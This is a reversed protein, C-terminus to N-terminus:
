PCGTDALDIKGDQDNDKFDHCTDPGILPTTPVLKHEPTKGQGFISPDSGLRNEAANSWGDRDDDPALATARWINGVSSLDCQSTFGGIAQEPDGGFGDANFFVGDITLRHSHTGAPVILNSASFRLYGDSQVIIPINTTLDLKFTGCSVSPSTIRVVQKGDGSIGISFPLAPNLTIPYSGNYVTPLVSARGSGRPRPLSPVTVPGNFRVTVSNPFSGPLPRDYTVAGIYQTGSVVAKTAAGSFASTTGTGVNSSCSPSLVQCITARWRQGTVSAQTDVILTGNATATLDFVCADGAAGFSCTKTVVVAYAAPQWLALVFGVLAVRRFLYAMKSSALEHFSLSFITPSM